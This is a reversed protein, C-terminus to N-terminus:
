STYGVLFLLCAGRSELSKLISTYLTFNGLNRWGPGSLCRKGPLTEVRNVESSKGLSCFCQRKLSTRRRKILPNRPSQIATDFVLTVCSLWRISKIDQLPKETHYHNSCPSTNSGCHSKQHSSQWQWNIKLCINKVKLTGTKKHTLM